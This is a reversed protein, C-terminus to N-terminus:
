RVRATKVASDGDPMAVITVPRGDVLRHQGRVIVTRLDPSLEPLIVDNGQEIYDALDFRRAKGREDVAFAFTAGDRFVASAVPLRFGQMRDVIIHALAILGPRLSGHPNPLLVEVSFLSTTEDAAEAVRFVRGELAGRRRGFRDRALLEVRVPQEPRIAGIFAEPVGAVLLVEDVKLLEFVPHHSSVSEGAHVMRRAIVGDTPAALVAEELQKEALEAQARALALATARDQYEADTIVPPTRGRLQEARGMHVQAQELRAQAEKLRAVLARDDLRALVQGEQVRDGDDLLRGGETVGIEAVRGGIEFGLAYRERPQIVGAYSDILEISELSVTAVAVPTPPALEPPLMATAERGRNRDGVATLVGVALAALSVLILGALNGLSFCRRWFPREDWSTDVARTNHGVAELGRPEHPMGERLVPEASAIGEAAASGGEASPRDQVVSDRDGAGKM